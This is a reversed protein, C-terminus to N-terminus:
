FCGNKVVNKRMKMNSSFHLIEFLLWGGLLNSFFFIKCLSKLKRFLIPARWRLTREFCGSKVMNGSNKVTLSTKLIEFLYQSGSLDALFCNWVLCRVGKRWKFFIASDM